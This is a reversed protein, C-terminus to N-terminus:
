RSTDSGRNGTFVEQIKQKGTNGVFIANFLDSKLNKVREVIQSSRGRQPDIVQLMKSFM